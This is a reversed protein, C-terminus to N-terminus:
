VKWVAWFRREARWAERAVRRAAMAEPVRVWDLAVEWRREAWRLRAERGGERSAVRVAVRLWIRRM